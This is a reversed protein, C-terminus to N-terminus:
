LKNKDEWYSWVTKLRQKISKTKYTEWYKELSDKWKINHLNWSQKM